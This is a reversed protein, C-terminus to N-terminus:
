KITQIKTPNLELLERQGAYEYSIHQNESFEKLRYKIEFEGGVFSYLLEIDSIEFEKLTRKYNGEEDKQKFDISPFVVKEGIKFLAIIECHFKITEM